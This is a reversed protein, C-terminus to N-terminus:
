SSASAGVVFVVVQELVMLPLLLVNLPFPLRFNASIQAYVGVGALVAWACVLLPRVPRLTDKQMYGHRELYHVAGSIFISSGRMAAFFSTVFRM